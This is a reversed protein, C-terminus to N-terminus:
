QELYGKLNKKLFKRAQHVRWYMTAVSCGEAKAARSVSWDQIVTLVIAARLKDSLAALATQIERDLEGAMARQDPVTHTSGASEPFKERTEIPSRNRKSLFSRTTNVAIRHLWTSFKARGRFGSLGRFARVFVEQTLDDTDSENLVMPFIVGRVRALHRRMLVDLHEVAGSQRFADILQEDTRM